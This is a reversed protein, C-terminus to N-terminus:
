RVDGRRCNRYHEALAQGGTVGCHARDPAGIQMPGATIAEARGQGARGREPLWWNTGQNQGPAVRSLQAHAPLKDAVDTETLRKTKSWVSNRRSNILLCGGPM